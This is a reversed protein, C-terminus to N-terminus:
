PEPVLTGLDIGPGNEAEDIDEQIDPAIYDTMPPRPAPEMARQRAIDDSDGDGTGAAPVAPEPEEAVADGAVPVPAATVPPPPPPAPKASPTALLKLERVEDLDRVAVVSETVTAQRSAPPEPTATETPWLTIALAAAPVVAAASGLSIWLTRRRM